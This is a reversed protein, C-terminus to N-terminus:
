KKAEIRAIAKRFYENQQESTMKFFPVFSPDNEIDSDFPKGSLVPRPPASKGLVMKQIIDTNELLKAIRSSTSLRSSRFPSVMESIRQRENHTLTSSKCRLTNSLDNSIEDLIMDAFNHHNSLLKDILAHPINLLRFLKREKAANLVIENGIIKCPNSSPAEKKPRQISMWFDEFNCNLEYEDYSAEAAAGRIARRMLAFAEAGRLQASTIISGIKTLLTKLAAKDLKDLIVPENGIQTRLSNFTRLELSNPGLIPPPVIDPDNVPRTATGSKRPEFSSAGPNLNSPAPQHFTAPQSYLKFNSSVGRSTPEFGPPYKIAADVTDEDYSYPYVKQVKRNPSEPFSPCWKPDLPGTTGDKSTPPPQDESKKNIMFGLKKLSTQLDEQKKKCLSDLWNKTTFCLEFWSHDVSLSHTVELTHLAVYVLLSLFGLLVIGLIDLFM